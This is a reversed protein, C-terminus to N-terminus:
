FVAKEQNRGDYTRLLKLFSVCTLAGGACIFPAGGRSEAVFSPPFMVTLENGPPPRRLVSNDDVVM